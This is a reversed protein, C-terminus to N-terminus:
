TVPAHAVHAYIRAIKELEQLRYAQDESSSVLEDVEREIQAYLAAAAKSKENVGTPPM